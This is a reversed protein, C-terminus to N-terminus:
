KKGEKKEDPKKVGQKALMSFDNLTGTTVDGKGQIIQLQPSQLWESAEVNRMFESVRANSESKGKLALANGTQKFSNLFIGEPTSVALEHFLRVIQPRSEQLKQIVEIKTLLQTKKQEIDQIEKIKKNLVAIEDNILKNRREQYEKMGEIHMYVLALIIATVVVGAGIAMLFDQQQQKRLEERWPLLNIRAM